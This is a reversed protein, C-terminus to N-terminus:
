AAMNFTGSVEQVGAWKLMSLVKGTGWKTPAFSARRDSQLRGGEGYNIVPGKVQRKTNEIRRRSYVLRLRKDEFIVSARTISM